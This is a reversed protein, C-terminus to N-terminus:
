RGPRGFVLVTELNGDGDAIGVFRIAPDLSVVKDCFNQFPTKM